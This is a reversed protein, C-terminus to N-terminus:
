SGSINNAKIDTVMTEKKNYILSNAPYDGARVVTGAAVICDKGIIAGKLIVSNAGIWTREGIIIEKKTYGNNELIHYNHDHDVIVVNNAITVDNCIEISDMSTIMVNQNMFVGNGINLRGGDSILTCNKRCHIVGNITIKGGHYLEVSLTHNIRQKWPLILRGAYRIKFYLVSPLSKIYEWYIM